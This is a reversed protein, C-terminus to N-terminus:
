RNLVRTNDVITDASVTVHTPGYGTPNLSHIIFSLERCLLKLSCLVTAGRALAPYPSSSSLSYSHFPVFFTNVEPRLSGRHYADLLGVVESSLKALDRYNAM